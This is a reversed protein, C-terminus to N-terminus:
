SSLSKEKASAILKTTIARNPIWYANVKSWWKSCYPSVTRAGVVSSHPRVPEDARICLGSDHILERHNQAVRNVDFLDAVGSLRRRGDIQSGCGSSGRYAHIEGSAKGPKRKDHAVDM